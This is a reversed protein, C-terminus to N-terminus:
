SKDPDESADTVTPPLFSQFPHTATQIFPLLLADTDGNNSASFAFNRRTLYHNTFTIVKFVRKGTFQKVSTLLFPANPLKFPM